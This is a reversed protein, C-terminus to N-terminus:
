EEGNQLLFRWYWAVGVSMLFLLAFALVIVAYAIIVTKNELETPVAAWPVNVDDESVEDVGLLRGLDRLERSTSMLRTQLSRSQELVRRLRARRQGRGEAAEKRAATDGIVTRAAARYAADMAEVSTLTASVADTTRETSETSADSGDQAPNLDGGAGDPLLLPTVLQTTGNECLLFM